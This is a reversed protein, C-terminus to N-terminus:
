GSVCSVSVPRGTGNFCAAFWGFDVGDVDNDGDIDAASCSEAVARGSGNFCMSFLGFDVGDVDRDDDSDGFVPLAIVKNAPVLITGIAAVPVATTTVMVAEGSAPNVAAISGAGLTGSLDAVAPLGDTTYAVHVTYPEGGVLSATLAHWRVAGVAPRAAVYQAGWLYRCAPRLYPYVPWSTASAPYSFSEQGPHVAEWAYYLDRCESASSFAAAQHGGVPQDIFNAKIWDLAVPLAARSASGALIDSGHTAWGTVWVRDARASNLDHLWNLLELLFRGQVAPVRMDQPIGKHVQSTGLVPGFPTVVVPGAPDHTLFHSGSPRYPNMAYHKFYGYFDEEPGQQHMTFGFQRMLDIRVVDSSPIHSGRTNNIERLGAPDSVGLANTIAANAFNVHDNWAAVVLSIPASAGLSRWDHTGFRKEDHSHTGISGGSAYLRQILALGAAADELTYEYYEGCALFTVKAGRAGYTDLAWNAADRWQAYVAARNALPIGQLPDMHLDCVIRIPGPEARAPVTGCASAVLFLAACKSLRGILVM